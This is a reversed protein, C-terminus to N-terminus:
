RDDLSFTFLNRIGVTEYAVGDVIRPKFKFKQAAKIAASDFVSDTSEIVVANTVHGTATVDFKVLVYGEIERAIARAPYVPAVRVMAVLPGDTFQGIPMLGTATPPAPTSRPVHLTEQGESHIVRPPHILTKTLDDKQVLEEETQLPTDPDQLVLWDLTMRPRPESKAAPQLTILLQMVFILALTVIASSSAASAYRTLM